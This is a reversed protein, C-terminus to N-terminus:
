LLKDKPEMLFPFSFFFSPGFFHDISNRRFQWFTFLKKQWLSVCANNNDKRKGCSVFNSYFETQSYCSIKQIRDSFSFFFFFFLHVWSFIQPIEGFNGFQTFNKWWISGCANIDDKHNGCSVINCYCETQDYCGIKQIRDFYFLRVWSFIQLIEGFSGFTFHKKQWLSVCANNDEKRKGSLVFNSYFETQNYYGINQFRGFFFFFFVPGLFIQIIPCFHAKGIKFVCDLM